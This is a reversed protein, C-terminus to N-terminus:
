FELVIEEKTRSLSIVKFKDFFGQQGLLPMSNEYTFDVFSEFSYGEVFMKIGFHRYTTIRKGGIGETEFVKGKKVKIGLIEGIEAPFLNYDAGSDLLAKLPGFVKGRKYNILLQVIPRALEGVTQGKEVFPFVQYYFKLKSM